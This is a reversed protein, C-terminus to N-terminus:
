RTKANRDLVFQIDKGSISAVLNGQAGVAVSTIVGASTVRGVIQSTYADLQAKQIATQKKAEELQAQRQEEEKKRASASGFIGGLLGVVGGIVAGAVTGIVPVVSGIAAGTGAGSLAGGLGQGITSTKPTASSIVSGAIAAGAAAKGLGTLGGTANVLGNGPSSIAKQLANSLGQVVVNLFVQNLSTTLKGTLDAFISSFTGKTYTEVDTLASYFDNSFKRMGQDIGKSFPEILKRTVESKTGADILGNTGAQAGQIKLSKIANNFGNPDNSDAKNNLKFLEDYYGKAAQLRKDWELKIKDTEAEQKSGINAVSIDNIATIKEQLDRETQLNKEAAEKRKEIIKDTAEFAKQVSKDFEGDLEVREAKAIAVRGAVQRAELAAREGSTLKKSEATKKINEDLTANLEIYKDKVKQVDLAYGTLGAQGSLSQTKRLIDDLQTSLSAFPSGTSSGKEAKVDFANFGQEQAFKNFEDFTKQAVQQSKKEVKTLSDLQKKGNYEAAAGANSNAVNIKQINDVLKPTVENSKKLFSDLPKILPSQQDALSGTNGGFFKNPDTVISGRKADNKDRQVSAKYSAEAAQKFAFEAKAKLLLFKLYAPGKDVIAQEAQELSTVKGITAGLTENYEKLVASKDLFGGRALKVKETLNALAVASDVYGSKGFKDNEVDEIKKLEKATEEASKNFVGLSTAAATIGEFALNFIGALGLGPVIYAITRLPSIVNSLTKGFALLGTESKVIASGTADFGAKGINQARKLEAELEQILKNQRKLANEDVINVKTKNLNVIASKLESIPTVERKIAANANDAAQEVSKLGAVSQKVAASLSANNGVLQYELRAM